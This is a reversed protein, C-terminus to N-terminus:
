DEEGGATRSLVEVVERAAENPVTFHLDYQLLEWGGDRWRAVGTGRLQGYGQNTLLEDFWALDGELAAHRNSPVYTWGRGQDFYPKVYASFAAKDWRETADTGLYVGDDAIRGLYGEEDAVSAAAHWADLFVGLSAATPAPGAAAPPEERVEAPVVIPAPEAPEELTAPAPREAGPEVPARVPDREAGTSACAQLVLPSVLALARLAARPRLVSSLGAARARATTLVPFEPHM